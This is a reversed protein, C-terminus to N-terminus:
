IKHEWRQTKMTKAHSTFLEVDETTEPTQKNMSIFVNEFHNVNGCRSCKKGIAQYRQLM